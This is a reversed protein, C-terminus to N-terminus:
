EVLQPYQSREALSFAATSTAAAMAETAGLLGKLRLGISYTSAAERCVTARVANPEEDSTAFAQGDWRGVVIDSIVLSQDSTRDNLTAYHVASVDIDTQTADGHRLVMAGAFSSADAATKLQNRLMSVYVLDVAALGLVIALVACTFRRVRKSGLPNRAM